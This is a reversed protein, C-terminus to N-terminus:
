KIRAAENYIAQCVAYVSIMAAALFVMRYVWQLGFADSIEGFPIMMTTIVSVVSFAIQFVLAASSKNRLEKRRAEDMEDRYESNGEAKGVSEKILAKRYNHHEKSVMIMFACSLISLVVIVAYIIWFKVPDSMKSNYPASIFEYTVSYFMMVAYKAISFCGFGILYKKAIKGDVFRSVTRFAIFMFVAFLFEPVFYYGDIPFSIAFVYAIISYLSFRTLSRKFLLEKNNIVETEYRTYIYELLDKDKLVTSMYKRISIFWIVGFILTLVGAIIILFIQITNNSNLEDVEGLATLWPAFACVGRVILFISSIIGLNNNQEKEKLEGDKRIIGYDLTAFFNKLGPILLICYVLHAALSLTLITTKDMGGSFIGMLMAFFMAVSVWVAALYNKKSAYLREDLDALKEVSKYLLIMGIFDPLVDIVGYYPNILFILGILLNSLGLDYGRKNKRRKQEMKTNTKERRM